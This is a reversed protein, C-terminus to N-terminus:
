YVMGCQSVSFGGGAVLFLIKDGRRPPELFMAIPITASTLNGYQAYTIPADELAVEAMEAMAIHPKKGVQHCYAKKVQHPMWALDAYTQGMMSQHIELMKESVGKMIMQGMLGSDEWRYYCLNINEGESRFRLRKWGSNAGSAQILMAGGADGVTLFGLWRRFDDKNTAAKLQKMMSRM